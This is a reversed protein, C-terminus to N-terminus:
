DHTVRKYPLILTVMTGKENSHKRDEITINTEVKFEKSLMQLREATITTALSTKDTLEKDTKADIGIGNDIISCILKDDVFKLIITIQKDNDEKRFAHEIANEVFPQIMMPPILIRNKDIDDDIEIIYNYPIEAGLNQVILYNEIAKIENELVVTKDRSNELIIRLLKSFKSLYTIAKKSEKNLIIGQLVSLSNFIFHPTMQSRLLKQEILINQNVSKINRIRLLFIRTGLIITVILFGIVALLMYRQSEALNKDVTEIRKTLTIERRSASDLEKQYKYEYELQTLKQINKKNFISDNLTKYERYNKYAEKYKKQGDYIESLLRSISRQPKLAKIATAIKQGKLAYDLANSYQERKYYITAIGIYPRLNGIEYGIAKNITLARNYNQFAKDYEKLLIQVDGINSLSIIIRSKENIQENIKLAENFFSLAKTYNAQEKYISGINNTYRALANKNGQKKNFELGKNYYLLAKDLDGNAKYIFGINSLLTPSKLENEPKEYINLAKHFYELAKPFNGQEGYISGINNYGLAVGYDNNLQQKVEITKIYYEIAQDYNGQDAYINGINNYSGSIGNLDNREKDIDLSKKYYELAKPFDSQNYYLMGIGNLCYSVGKKQGLSEYMKLSQNFYNLSSTLDGKILEIHGKRYIIEAKGKKFDLENALIEAEETLTEALALDVDYIEYILSNLLEIRITDRATYSALENKLSDM